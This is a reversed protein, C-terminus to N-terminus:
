LAKLAELYLDRDWRKVIDVRAFEGKGTTVIHNTYGARIAEAFLELCTSELYDLDGFCPEEFQERMFNLLEEDSIEDLMRNKYEFFIEQLRILTDVYTDQTIYSSDCFAYIIQPLIGSGFEVRGKEKLIHNKEAILLETDQESLQLGYKETFQNTEELQRLMNQQNLLLMWNQESM